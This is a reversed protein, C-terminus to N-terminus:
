ASQAAAKKARYREKRYESMCARCMGKRGDRAMRLSEQPYDELPKTEGCRNCPKETKPGPQRVPLPSRLANVLLSAM